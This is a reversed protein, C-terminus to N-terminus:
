EAAATFSITAIPDGAAFVNAKGQPKAFAEILAQATAAQPNLGAGSVAITRAKPESIDAGVGLGVQLASATGAVALCALLALVVNVMPRRM